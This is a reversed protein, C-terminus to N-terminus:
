EKAKRHEEIEVANMKARQNLFKALDSISDFARFNEDLHYAPCEENDHFWSVREDGRCELITFPEGCFPCPGITEYKGREEM